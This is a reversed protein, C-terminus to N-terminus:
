RLVRPTRPLPGVNGVAVVVRWEGGFTGGVAKRKEIERSM